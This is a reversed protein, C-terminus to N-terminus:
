HVPLQFATALRMGSHQRSPTRAFAVTTDWAKGAKLQAGYAVLMAAILITPCATGDKQSLEEM